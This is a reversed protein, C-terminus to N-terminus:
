PVLWSDDRHEIGIAYAENDDGGDSLPEWARDGSDWDEGIWINNNSKGCTWTGQWEVNGGAFLVNQGDWGHNPSNREYWEDDEDGGPAVEDRVDIRGPSKDACVVVNSKINDRTNRGLQNQFSYSCALLSPFDYWDRYEVTMDDEESLGDSLCVFVDPTCSGSRVLMWLCHTNSSMPEIEDLKKGGLSDVDERDQDPLAFGDGEDLGDPCWSEDSARADSSKSYLSPFRGGANTAYIKIGNGINKLKNACDTRNAQERAAALAPLLMAVLVGIIAIVVLV